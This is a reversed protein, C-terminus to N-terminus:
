KPLTKVNEVALKGRAEMQRDEREEKTGGKVSKCAWSNWPICLAGVCISCKSSIEEVAM